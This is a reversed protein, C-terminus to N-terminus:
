GNISWYISGSTPSLTTNQSCAAEVIFDRGIIANFDGLFLPRTDSNTRIILDQHTLKKPSGPTGFGTPVLNLQGGGSGNDIILNGFCATSGGDTYESVATATEFFLMQTNDVEYITTTSNAHFRETGNWITSSRATGASTHYFDFFAGDEVELVGGLAVSDFSISNGRKIFKGGTKVLCV